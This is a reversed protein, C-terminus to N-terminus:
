ESATADVPPADAPKGAARPRAMWLTSGIIATAGVVGWVGPREGFVLWGWVGAFVVQLYGVATARAARERQLGRTMCVQALQTSVGMVVLVPWELATPWVWDRLAFPLTM